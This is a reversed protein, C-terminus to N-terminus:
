YDIIKTNPKFMVGLTRTHLTAYGRHRVIAVLLEEVPRYMKKTMKLKLILM